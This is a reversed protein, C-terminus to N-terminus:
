SKGSLDKSSACFIEKKRQLLPFQYVSMGLDLLLFLGGFSAKRRRLLLLVPVVTLFLGRQMTLDYLLPWATTCEGTPRRLM